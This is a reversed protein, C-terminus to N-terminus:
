PTPAAAVARASRQEIDALEDDEIGRSVVVDERLSRESTM